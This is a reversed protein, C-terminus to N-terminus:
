LDQAPVEGSDGLIVCFCQNELDDVVSAAGGFFKADIAGASGDDQGKRHWSM